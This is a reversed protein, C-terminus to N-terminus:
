GSVEFFSTKVCISFFSDDIPSISPAATMVLSPRRIAESNDEPISASVKAAMDAVM